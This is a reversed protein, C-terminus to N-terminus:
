SAAESTLSFTSEGITGIMVPRPPKPYAIVLHDLSNSVRWPTTAFHVASSLGALMKAETAMAAATALPPRAKPRPYVDERREMTPYMPSPTPCTAMPRAM